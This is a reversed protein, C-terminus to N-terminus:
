SAAYKTFVLVDYLAHVAVVIGFGRGLYIAAFYVGAVTYFLLKTMTFPNHDGTFHVLAFGLSSLVVAAITSIEESLKLLDKAVMHILAIAVMRFLLEEYIGAGIAIVMNERWGAWNFSGVSASIVPERVLVTALM